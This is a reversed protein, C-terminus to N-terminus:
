INGCATAMADLEDGNQYRVFKDETMNGEVLAIVIQLEQLHDTFFGIRPRVPSSLRVARSKHRLRQFATRENKIRRKLARERRKLCSLLKLQSM